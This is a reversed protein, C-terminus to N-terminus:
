IITCALTERVGIRAASVVQTLQCFAVPNAGLAVFTATQDSAILRNLPYRGSRKSVTGLSKSARDSSSRVTARSRAM